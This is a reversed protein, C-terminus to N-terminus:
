CHEGAGHDLQGLLEKGGLASCRNKGIRLLVAASFIICCDKKRARSRFIKSEPHKEAIKIAAQGYKLCVSRIENASHVAAQYLQYGAIVRGKMAFYVVDVFGFLDADFPSRVGM